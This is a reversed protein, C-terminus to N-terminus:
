TRKCLQLVYAIVELEVLTSVQVQVGTQAVVVSLVAYSKGLIAGM